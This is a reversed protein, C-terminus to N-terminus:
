QVVFETFYISRVNGTQLISNLRGTLEAKLQKKGQLDRLEDYTKNGVLLLIADRLQPMRKEAEEKTIDSSLELTLKSKVYHNGEGSIINVIFEDVNLMPGIEASQNLKPVPVTQAPTQEKPPPESKGLLLVTVIGVIILLLLAAAIIIILMKKSKKEEPLNKKGQADKKDAM